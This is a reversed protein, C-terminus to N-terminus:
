VGVTALESEDDFEDDVEAFLEVTLDAARGVSEYAERFVRTADLKSIYLETTTVSSHGLLDRLVMLPDARTLYLAMAADDGTDAVLRAAQQYYGAVLMELTAMAFSHRLRHPRVHPFRPEFRTRIRASVRRFVMAWDVFAAGDRQVALLLSGGGADVLRLRERPTLRAWAVRRGNVVGGSGDADTVVLPAGLRRDPQWRSGDVALPRELTCYRHVAALAEYSVWTTRQKRGKTIGAPVPLRIPVVNPAAPLPPVEHVLLHTFEQRRLGSALVFRAMAANRGPHLGRFAPDPSGDPLLGELARVFLEMFERELYKVRTHAKPARVKALNRRVEVLRGDAFRRGAGYTFPVAVAHGEEVAWAYFQAVVGVHLNWTSEAVRAEVPGALRHEAYGALAARLRDREGFLEVGRGALFELWGKLARAYVEWSNPALAGSVPLERLWQNVAAVPRAGREDEFRLDDDVLVPMDQRILPQWQVDWDHWGESSFFIMQM